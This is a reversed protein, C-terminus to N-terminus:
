NLPDLPRRLAGPGASGVAATSPRAPTFMEGIVDRRHDFIKGLRRRVFLAHAVRGIWGFPLAYQVEDTIVTGNERASFTHIHHWFAYPGRVQTDVFSGPPDYATILTTWRVRLKWLRITYDIVTGPKMHIPSPTLISFGLDAPTLRALNEPRSFFSFVRDLPAHVFQERRIRYIRLSRSVPRRHKKLGAAPM